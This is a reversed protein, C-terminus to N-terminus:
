EVGETIKKEVVWKGMSMNLLKMIYPVSKLIYSRIEQLANGLGGEWLVLLIFNISQSGYKTKDKKIM